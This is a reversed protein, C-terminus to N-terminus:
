FTLNFSYSGKKKLPKDEKSRKEITNEPKHKKKTGTSLQEERSDVVKEM